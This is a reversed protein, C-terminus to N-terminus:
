AVTAEHMEAVCDFVSAVEEATRGDADNYNIMGPFRYGEGKIVDRFTKNLAVIGERRDLELEKYAREVAGSACFCVARPDCPLVLWGDATRAYAGQAWGSRILEAARRAIAVVNNTM